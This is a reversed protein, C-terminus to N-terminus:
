KVATAYMKVIANFAKNYVAGDITADFDVDDFKKILENELDYMAKSMMQEIIEAKQEATYKAM